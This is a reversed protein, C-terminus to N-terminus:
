IYFIPKGDVKPLYCQITAKTKITKGEINFDIPEVLQAMGGDIELGITKVQLEKTDLLISPNYGSTNTFHLSILNSNSQSNGMDVIGLLKIEQKRLLNEDAEVIPKGLLTGLKKKM